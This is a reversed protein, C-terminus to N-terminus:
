FKNYKKMVTEIEKQTKCNQLEKEFGSIPNHEGATKISPANIVKFLIPDTQKLEDVISEISSTDVNGDEKWQIKSKDVVKLTTNLDLADNKTLVDRLLTDVQQNRVNEQLTNFQTSVEEYKTKWENIETNYGTSLNHLAEQLNKAGVDKALQQNNRENARLKEVLSKQKELQQQLEVVRADAVNIDNTDNTTEDTEIGINKETDVTNM